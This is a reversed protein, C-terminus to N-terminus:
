APAGPRIALLVGDALGIRAEAGTFVNSLGRSSGPELTEGRLPYELGDTAVGLAPGGVALLSV